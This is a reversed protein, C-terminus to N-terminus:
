SGGVRLGRENQQGAPHMSDVWRGCWDEQAPATLPHAAELEERGQILSSNVNKTM